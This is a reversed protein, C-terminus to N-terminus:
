DRPGPRTSTARTWATSTPWVTQLSAHTRVAKFAFVYESHPAPSSVSSSPAPIFRGRVLMDLLPVIDRLDHAQYTCVQVPDDNQTLTAILRQLPRLPPQAPRIPTLLVSAPAVACPPDAVPRAAAGVDASVAPSLVAISVVIISPKM